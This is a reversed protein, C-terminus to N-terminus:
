GRKVADEKRIGNRMAMTFRSDNLRGRMEENGSRRM